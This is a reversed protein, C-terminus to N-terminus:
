IGMFAVQYQATYDSVVRFLAASATAPLIMSSNSTIPGINTWNGALSPSMQIQYTPRGGTWSLIISDNTQTVGTILPSSIEARSSAVTLAAVAIPLLVRSSALLSHKQSTNMATLLIRKCLRVIFM